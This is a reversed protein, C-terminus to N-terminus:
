DVPAHTAAEKMFGNAEHLLWGILLWATSCVYVCLLTEFSLTMKLLMHVIDNAYTGIEM